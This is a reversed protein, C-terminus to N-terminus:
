TTLQMLPNATALWLTPNKQFVLNHRTDTDIWTEELINRCHLLPNIDVVLRGYTVKKHAPIKSPHIFFITSNGTPIRDKVGQSLRGFDNALAKVWVDKGPGQILHRYELSVGTDPNIVPCAMHEHFNIPHAPTKALHDAAYSSKSNCAM